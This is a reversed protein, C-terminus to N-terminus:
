ATKPVSGCNTTTTTSSVSPVRYRVRGSQHKLTRKPAYAFPGYLFATDSHPTRTLVSTAAAATAARVSEYTGMNTSQSNAQQHGLDRAAATDPEVGWQDFQNRVRNRTECGVRRGRCGSHNRAHRGRRSPIGVRNGHIPISTASTTGHQQQHQQQQKSLMVRITSVCCSSCM